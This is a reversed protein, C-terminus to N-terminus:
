GQQLLGALRSNLVQQDPLARALTGWTGQLGWYEFNEPLLAHASGSHSGSPQSPLASTCGEVRSTARKKASPCGGVGVSGLICYLVTPVVLVVVVVVVVGVGGRHQATSHQAPRDNVPPKPPTSCASETETHGRTSM